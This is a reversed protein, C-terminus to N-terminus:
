RPLRKSQVDVQIRRDLGPLVEAVLKDLEERRFARRLPLRELRPGTLDVEPLLLLAGGARALGAAIVETVRPDRDIVLEVGGDRDRVAGRPKIPETSVKIPADELRVDAS